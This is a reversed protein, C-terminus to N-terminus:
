FNADDVDSSRSSTLPRVMSRLKLGPLAVHGTEVVQEILWAQPKAQLRRDVRKQGEAQRVDESNRHM